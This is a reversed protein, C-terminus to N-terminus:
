EKPREQPPLDQRLGTRAHLYQAPIQANAGARRNRLPHSFPM